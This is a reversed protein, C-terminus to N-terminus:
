AIRGLGDMYIREYNTDIGMFNSFKKYEARQSQYRAKQITYEEELGGAKYGMARARTNRMQRELERQRDLADRYTFEREHEVGRNDKWKYHKTETDRKYQAKLEEKSPPPM